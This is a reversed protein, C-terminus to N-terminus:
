KFFTCFNKQNRPFQERIPHRTAEHLSKQLRSGSHLKDTLLGTLFLGFWYCWGSLLAHSGCYLLSGVNVTTVWLRMIMGSLIRTPSFSAHFHCCHFSDFFGGHIWWPPAALGNGWSHSANICNYAASITNGLGGQPAASQTLMNPPFRLHLGTLTNLM